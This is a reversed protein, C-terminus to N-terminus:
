NVGTTAALLPMLKFIFVRSSCMGKAKNYRVGPTVGRPRDDELKLLPVLVPINTLAGLCYIPSTCTAIPSTHM